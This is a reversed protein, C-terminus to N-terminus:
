APTAATWGAAADLTPEIRVHDALGGRRLLELTPGRVAALRLEVGRPELERVLEALTDLTQVDMEDNGSLDLVLVGPRPEASDVTDLLRRKV